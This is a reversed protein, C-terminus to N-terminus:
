LIGRYSGKKHVNAIQQVREKFQDPVGKNSNGTFVDKCKREFGDVESVTEFNQFTNMKLNDNGCTCRIANLDSISVLKKFKKGCNLCEFTYFQYHM